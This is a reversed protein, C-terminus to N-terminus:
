QTLPRSTSEGNTLGWAGTPNRRQPFPRSTDDGCSFSKEETTSVIHSVIADAVSRVNERNLLEDHRGDVYRIHLNSPVVAQWGPLYNVHPPRDSALLLLVTGEYKEPQYARAAAEIMEQALQMETRGSRTRVTRAFRNLLRMRFRALSTRLGLRVAKELLYGLYILKRTLSEHSELYSLNPADLLVLISVEHRAARLQCAIEYALIGGLCQGGIIYPGKSQTALIKRLHCAAITQLTPAEGLSAVDEATLTVALFPQDDGLANALSGNVYHVWFISSRTGYPHLALVGPPLIPEEKVRRLTLQTQQRVTPRHFLEAIPIRRGFEVAIRQQLAGFLESHGGLDFFNDDLGVHNRGLLDAWIAALRAEELMTEILLAL